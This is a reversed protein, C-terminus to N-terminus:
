KPAKRPNKTAQRRSSRQPRAAPGPRPPAPATTAAPRGRRRSSPGPQGPTRPLIHKIAETQKKVALFQNAFDEVTEGFLGGQSVPADLFRVKEADKMEALNLWLHREQAVLTSMARDLAQATVKTAQLAYDTPSRRERLVEPDTSGEDLEKLAEARFPLKGRSRSSLCQPPVRSFRVCSRKPSPPAVYELGISEAAMEAEVESQAVFGSPPLGTSAEADSLSLGGESAAISIEDGEPARFSFDLGGQPPDVPPVLTTGPPNDEMAIGLDGEAGMVVAETGAPPL